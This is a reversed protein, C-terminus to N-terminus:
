PLLVNKAKRPNGIAPDNASGFNGITLVHALQRQTDEIQSQLASVYSAMLVADNTAQTHVASRGWRTLWFVALCVPKPAFGTANYRYVSRISLGLVRAVRAPPPNCLDDMMTHWIPLSVPAQEISFLQPKM